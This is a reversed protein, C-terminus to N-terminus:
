SAREQTHIASKSFVVTEPFTEAAVDPLRKVGYGLVLGYVVHGLFGLIGTFLTPNFLYLRGNPSFYITILLCCFVAVGYSVGARLPAVRRSVLPYVAYFALGMGGGNGIYRWLYGVVWHVQPRDLLYDGIKPIFDPWIGAIIFPFRCTVDYLLVAALGLTFGRVLTKAYEPFLTGLILAGVLAPAVIFPGSIHLPMVRFVSLSLCSIPAFGIVFIALRMVVDRDLPKAKLKTIM